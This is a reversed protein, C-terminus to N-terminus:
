LREIITANAMGGGECMTQLGYRGGRQELANVLTTMIRAGSAGLPHGIAIAGGNVNTKALIPAPDAGSVDQAWALVVPAFAENVEFLDIDAPTLGARKLVKETAPIVGTLMYLPDSGVVTTTHIRALPRLGLRAATESTTILVAASGDSLPSSNGPTIRWDIQPFRQAYAPNYFAPRLSALTEVTTGPRIIEDTTLGNVPILENDFRGEKTAAAAKEHSGASFEDLQQRSLGWKAAILEASIGQPVLGEPYRQAMSGFPDSGPLVSSGMPVRSMSEVGAAVVIDYAGALVGQAAFSIAQQSSGCQRDITTGPVSEPFGAALVANRAINVAQDGAQTVAGAIVDDIQVPDVGTRAVLEKLSHALLDVPLVDHLAGSAKGKGVPTRVAGVIVADRGNFASM